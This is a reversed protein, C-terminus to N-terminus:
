AESPALSVHTKSSFFRDQEAAGFGHFRAFRLSKVSDLAALSRSEPVVGLLQISELTPLAALPSLSEVVLRRRAADWSPLSELIVSRLRQLRALPALSTVRPFHLIRLRELRELPALMEFSDDPYTAITLERLSVLEQVPALTKYKCHWIKLSQVTRPDQVAPFLRSKDRILEVHM